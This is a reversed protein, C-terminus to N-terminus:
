ELSFPEEHHLVYLVTCLKENMQILLQFHMSYLFVKKGEEKNLDLFINPFAQGRGGQEAGNRHIWKCVFIDM